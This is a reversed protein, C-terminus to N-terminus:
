PATPGGPEENSDTEGSCGVTAIIAALCCGLWVRSSQNLM